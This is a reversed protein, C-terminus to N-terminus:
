SGAKRRGRLTPLRNRVGTPRTERLTCLGLLLPDIIGIQGVDVLKLEIQILNKFIGVLARVFNLKCSLAIQARPVKAGVEVGDKASVPVVGHVSVPCFLWIDSTVSVVPRWVSPVVHDNREMPSAVRGLTLAYDVIIRYVSLKGSGM